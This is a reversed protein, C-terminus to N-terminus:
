VKYTYCYYWVVTKWHSSTTRDDFDDAWDADSYDELNECPLRYQTSSTPAVLKLPICFAVLKKNDMIKSLKQSSNMQTPVATSEDIKFRKNIVSMLSHPFDVSTCYTM